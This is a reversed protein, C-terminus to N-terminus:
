KSLTFYRPDLKMVQHTGRYYVMFKHEGLREVRIKFKDSMTIQEIRGYELGEKVSISFVVIDGTNLKNGFKDRLPEGIPRIKRAM